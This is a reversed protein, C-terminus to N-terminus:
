VNGHGSDALARLRPLDTIIIRRRATAILGQDRLRALELAVTSRSLGAAQGLETQDLGVDVPMAPGPATLRLLTRLLRPGAPLVALEARWAEGERIRSMAHRLLQTELGLSRVLLLFRDAPIIRTECPDVAVVTASRGDGGLVSIDGLIEGPGRVALVLVNGDPSTRLVKVRGAMLALVHTPPEGQRLLISGPEHLRVGGASVM